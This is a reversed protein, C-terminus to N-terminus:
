ASPQGLQSQACEGRCPLTVKLQQLKRSWLKAKWAETRGAMCVDLQAQAEHRQKDAWRCRM